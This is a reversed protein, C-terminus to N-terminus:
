RHKATFSRQGFASAAMEKDTVDVSMSHHHFIANSVRHFFHSHSGTASKQKKDFLHSNGNITNPESQRIVIQRAFDDNYESLMTMCSSEGNTRELEKKAYQYGVDFGKQTALAIAVRGAKSENYFLNPFGFHKSILARHEKSIYAHDNIALIANEALFGNTIAYQKKHPNFSKLYLDILDDTGFRSIIQETGQVNSRIMLKWKSSYDKKLIFQEINANPDENIFVFKRDGSINLSWTM